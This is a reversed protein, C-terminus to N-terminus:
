FCISYNVGAKSELTVKGDLQETLMHILQIGLHSHLEVDFDERLGTGNDSIILTYKTEKSELSINICGKKDPFAYKLSNSIAENLILGIPIMKDIDFYIDDGIDYCFEIVSDPLAYSRRVTVSLSEIYEKLAIQSLNHSKYLMEHVLAMSNIRNRSERLLSLVKEDEVGDSQLSLLSSIIQMNNKVRHHIEKLLQEKEKLSITSHQLEEGLMNVGSGIGDLLNDDGIIKVKKDFDQRAFSLIVELIENARTNDSLSIRSFDIEM